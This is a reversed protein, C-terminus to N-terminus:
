RPSFATRQTRAAELLSARYAQDAPPADCLGHILTRVYLGTGGVVLPLRREGYLREIDQLALRRYDGPMLPSMLISWMSSGTHWGSGAAGVHTQRHGRGDRSLGATFRGNLNGHGAFPRASTWDRKEWGGHSRGTGGLPRSALVLDSLQIM